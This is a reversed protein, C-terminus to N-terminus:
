FRGFFIYCAIAGVVSMSLGWALLKNFLARSDETLPASALCLAGITSLPSVDVLHSGVNMSSAIALPDGGGLREVLGPITPLFAPLVVGSTSSYVSVLGTVFAIVGTVSERTSFRALLSTFLDMGQTKELLAILVTVGSVMLIVGWPMKAIAETENGLRLVILLVGGAFAAMGINVDLFVVAGLLSAIIALTVWHRRGFPEAGSEGPLGRGPYTKRFLRWGGFLFYGAFAVAVHAILNNVYTQWEFGAMGIRGMIGNVIIGTPAFPSLSGANAGNGVMIAMLFAPIGARGAVAMAMPALLAATAINGPGMSSLGAALAFFVVPILGVNGRCGSVAWRAVKDLTGNLYAQTFLLTVGTLTLFLSSPFGAMVDGTKMGGLYVGVIWALVISLLGVNLRITCSAVIVVVLAGLSIWALNM